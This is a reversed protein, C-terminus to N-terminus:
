LIRKAIERNVRNRLSILYFDSKPYREFTIPEALEGEILEMVFARSSLRELLELARLDTMAHYLVMMRISEEPTGDEKPYVLFPDGSPFASNSDTVQYPNIKELSYQSNYFNYGWHLIGEIQYKYLQIGYIRNRASPMVMFRNSVNLYQATCYYCWLGKVGHELFTHIHNNAPIPKEVAGTQYFEYSSLADMVVFDKLYEAVSEKAARYSELQNLEPEDSIHFYCRDAIKWEKLKATLQPLFIGLFRTYEGGVAPTDWGFIRRYEGDAMAMIKPAAIAGWQTFLHSMEFYQVGTKLCLDVWRKLRTFDFHYEGDCLTVGILQITTREGGKATDLPPTFLPTLLMNIGRKVGVAIFNELIKWHEESFVETQYFNALCDGHLWETRILKQPPLVAPYIVVKTELRALERKQENSLIISVSYSGAQTHEDAEVDIWLSKWRNPVVLLENRALETLLDPYLGPTTRLYNDDVTPHCPYSCPVEVVNRLRIQDKLASEISVTVFQNGNANCSYAIQFSITENKLGTLLSCEPLDVPEQDSFVKQLSSLLKMRYIVSGM